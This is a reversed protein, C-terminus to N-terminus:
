KVELSLVQLKGMVKYGQLIPYKLAMESAVEEPVIGRGSGTRQRDLQQQKELTELSAQWTGILKMEAGRHPCHMVRVGVEVHDAGGAGRALQDLTLGLDIFAEEWIGDACRYKPYSKYYSRSMGCRHAVVMEFYPNPLQRRLRMSPTRQSRSSTRSTGGGSSPANTSTAVAPRGVLRPKGASPDHSSPHVLESLRLKIHLVANQKTVDVAAEDSTETRLTASTGTSLHAERVDVQRNRPQPSEQRTEQGADVDKTGKDDTLNGQRHQDHNSGLALIKAAHHVMTRTVPSPDRPRGPVIQRLQPSASSAVQRLKVGHLGLVLFDDDVNGLNLRVPASREGDAEGPPSARPLLHARIESQLLPHLCRESVSLVQKCDCWRNGGSKSNRSDSSPRGHNGAEATSESSTGVSGDAAGGGVGEQMGCRSCFFGVNKWAWDVATLGDRDCLTRPADSPGARVLRVLVAAEIPSVIGNEARTTCAAVHLPVMGCARERAVVSAPHCSLVMGVIEAHNTSDVYGGHPPPPRHRVPGGSRAIPFHWFAAPLSQSDGRDRGLVESKSPGTMLSSPDHDYGRYPIRRLDALLHLPLLGFSDQRHGCADPNADVLRRILDSPPLPRMACALHLPMGRSPTDSFEPLYVEERAEQPHTRLREKAWEWRGEWLLKWLERDPYVAFPSQASATEEITSSLSSPQLDESPASRRPPPELTISSIWKLKPYSSSSSSSSSLSPGAKSAADDNRVKASSLSSLFDEAHMGCMEEVWADDDVRIAAAIRSVALTSNRSSM